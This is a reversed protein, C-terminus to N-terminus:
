IKQWFKNQDAAYSFYPAPERRENERTLFNYISFYFAVFAQSTTLNEAIWKGDKLGILGRGVVYCFDVDRGQGPAQRFRELERKPWDSASLDTSLAFVLHLYRQAGAKIDAETSALKKKMPRLSKLASAATCSKRVEAKTLRTKSEVSVLLAEAPLVVYGGRYLPFNKTRDFIVVDM